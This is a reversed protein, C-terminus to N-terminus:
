YTKVSSIVKLALNQERLTAIEQPAIKNYTLDVTDLHPLQYLPKLSPYSFSNNTLDLFRLEKFKTLIELANNTFYNGELSFGQILHQYPILQELVSDGVERDILNIHLPAIKSLESELQYDALGESSFFDSGEETADQSFHYICASRIISKEDETDSAKLNGCYLMSFLISVTIIKSKFM